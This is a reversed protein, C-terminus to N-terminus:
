NEHINGFITGSIGASNAEDTDIHAAFRFKESIRIVTQCFILSRNETKIELNCEDGNKYIETIPDDINAHIHRKSVIVGHNLELIGNPGMIICGPSDKLNGSERIPANIRLNRADTASIEVQSEEREPGLVSVNEIVRDNNKITVKENSLFQGPQSLNKKCTLKYGSGFLIDIDNGCLHIHRASVEIKVKM